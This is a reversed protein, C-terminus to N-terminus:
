NVKFEKQNLKPLIGFLSLHRFFLNFKNFFKSYGLLNNYIKPKFQSIIKNYPDLLLFIDNKKIYKLSLKNNKM